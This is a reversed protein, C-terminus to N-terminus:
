IKNQSFNIHHKSKLHRAFNSKTCTMVCDCIIKEQKRKNIKDKNEEYKQHKNDKTKLYYENHKKRIEEINENYYQKGYELIKQKRLEKNLISHYTNLCLNDNLAKKIYNNEIIHLEKSNTINVNEILQITVDWEIGIFYKYTKTNPSIKSNAKHRNLRVNLETITSGIYYYKPERNSIIKYIKSNSYKNM